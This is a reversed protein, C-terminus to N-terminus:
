LCNKNQMHMKQNEDSEFILNEIQSHNITEAIMNLM